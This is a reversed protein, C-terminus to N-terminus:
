ITPDGQHEGELWDRPNANDGRASFRLCTPCRKGSATVVERLWEKLGNYALWQSPKRDGAFRTVLHLLENVALSAVVGNFSIVSPSPVQEGRVYGRQEAEHLEAQVNEPTVIEQCRLCPSDPMLVAVRGTVNRITGRDDVEVEFGTDILPVMYQYAFANLIGRSALNDTGCVIVDVDKLAELAEQSEVPSAIAQVSAGPAILSIMKEMVSVKAPLERLDSRYSGVVRSLNTEELRDNDVLVFGRVGLHAMQQVVHSGIGGVGVVGVKLRQLKRQGEEGLALIQRHHVQDLADKGDTESAGTGTIRPLGPEVITISAIPHLNGSPSLLRGQFAERGFVLGGHELGPVRASARQILQPQWHDDIGSFCVGKDSFPHTHVDFTSWRERRARKLVLSVFEPAFELGGSSQHSLLGSTALVVDRVLFIIREPLDIRGAMLYAGQEMVNGSPFLHEMLAHYHPRSIRLEYRTM